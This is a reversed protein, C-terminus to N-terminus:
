HFKNIKIRNRQEIFNYIKACRGNWVIFAVHSRPGVVCTVHCMVCDTYIIRDEVAEDSTGLRESSDFVISPM